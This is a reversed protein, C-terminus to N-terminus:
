YQQGRAVIIAARCDGSSTLLNPFIMRMVSIATNRIAMTARSGTPMHGHPVEYHPDERKALLQNIRYHHKKDAQNATLGVSSAASIFSPAKHPPPGAGPILETM